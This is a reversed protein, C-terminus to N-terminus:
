HRRVRKTQKRIRKTKTKKKYSKRRKTKGGISQSNILNNLDEIKIEQLTYAGLEASQNCHDAGLATFDEPLEQIALPKSMFKFVKGSPVLNFIKTGPVAKLNYWNPKVIMTPSGGINIKIFRRGNPKIYNSYSNGQWSTPTDDTCEIFEKGSSSSAPWDIADGTFIGSQNRVIFPNYDKNEEFFKSISVEEVNIPDFVNIKDYIEAIEPTITMEQIQEHIEAEPQLRKLIDRGSEQIQPQSPERQRLQRTQSSTQTRTRTASQSATQARPQSSPRRASQTTTMIATEGVRQIRPKFQNRIPCGKFMQRMNVNPNLQWMSIDKNFQEASEFMREM